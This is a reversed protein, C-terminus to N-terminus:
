RSCCSRNNRSIINIKGINITSQRSMIEYTLPSIEGKITEFSQEALHPQESLVQKIEEESIPTTDM